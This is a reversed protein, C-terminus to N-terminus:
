RGWRRDAHWQQAPWTVLRRPPAEQIVAWPRPAAGDQEGSSIDPGNPPYGDPERWSRAQDAHQSGIEVGTTM